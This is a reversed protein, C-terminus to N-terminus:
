LYKLLGHELLRLRALTEDLMQGPTQTADIVHIRRKGSSAMAEYGEFVKQHFKETERDLRDTQNRNQRARGVEPPLMCFFSLDPEVGGLAVQNMRDVTKEGLSRGYGQYAVSADAFRDCLIILGAELAPRIKERVLQARSAVMLMLETESCMDASARDLLINRIREGIATGGPERILMPDDGRSSIHEAIARILTTKGSGEPGEFTILLGRDSAPHKKQPTM